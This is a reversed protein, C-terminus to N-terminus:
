RLHPPDDDAPPDPEITAGGHGSRSRSRAETGSASAVTAPAGDALGLQWLYDNYSGQYADHSRHPRDASNPVKFDDYDAHDVSAAAATRGIPPPDARTSDSGPSDARPVEHGRGLSRGYRDALRAARRWEEASPQRQRVVTGNGNSRVALAEGGADGSDGAPDGAADGAAGGILQAPQDLEDGPEIGFEENGPDLGLFRRQAERVESRGIAFPAALALLAFLYWQIIYAFHQWEYAGGAPNSLDPDPLVTVGSTGPQGANLTVYTDYVPAGLRSSQQAPNISEIERNTLESAGDNGTSATQLRGTIQVTGAPPPTIDAPPTSDGSNTIDGAVFGRVVLLLGSATRLPTVVYYGSATNLSQDRVYAQGSALYVGTTTITRFRIAERSPAPGPGVLPVLATTLAVAGAHANRDLADNDRVSQEFRSIQWTGAAVCALALVLMLAALAAYRRQRLTWLATQFV